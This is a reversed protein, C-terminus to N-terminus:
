EQKGHKTADIFEAVDIAHKPCLWIEANGDLIIGHINMWDPFGSGYEKESYEESCIDCTVKRTLPM